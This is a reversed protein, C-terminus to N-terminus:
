KWKWLVVVIIVVLLFFFSSTIQKTLLNYRELSDGYIRINQGAEKINFECIISNIIPVTNITSLM